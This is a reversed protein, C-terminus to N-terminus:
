RLLDWKVARCGHRLVEGPPLCERVRHDKVLCPPPRIDVIRKSAPAVDWARETSRFVEDPTGLSFRCPDGVAYASTFPSYVGEFAKRVHAKSGESVGM